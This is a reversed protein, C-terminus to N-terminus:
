IIYHPAEGDLAARATDDPDASAAQVIAVRSTALFDVSIPLEIPVHGRVNIGAGWSLISNVNSWPICWWQTSADGNGTNIPSHVILNGAPVAIVPITAHLAGRETLLSAVEVEGAPVEESVTDTSGVAITTSESKSTGVTTVVQLSKSVGGSLGKAAAGVNVTIGRWIQKSETEGVSLTDTVTATLSATYTAPDHNRHNDWVAVKAAVPISELSVIKGKTNAGATVALSAATGPGQYNDEPTANPMTLWEHYDITPLGIPNAGNGVGFDSPKAFYYDSDDAIRDIYDPGVGGPIVEFWFHNAIVRILARINTDTYGFEGAVDATMPATSTGQATIGVNDPELGYSLDVRLSGSPDNSM